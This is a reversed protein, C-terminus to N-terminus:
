SVIGASVRSSRKGPSLSLRVRSFYFLWRALTQSHSWHHHFVYFSTQVDGYLAPRASSRKALGYLRACGCWTMFLLAGTRRLARITALVHAIQADGTEFFERLAAADRNAAWWIGAEWFRNAAAM